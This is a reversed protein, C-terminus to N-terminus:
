TLRDILTGLEKRAIDNASKRIDQKTLRFHSYGKFRTAANRSGVGELWGGYIVGSDDVVTTKATNRTQIKSRYYGTPNQLVRDLRIHLINVAEKGVAELAKTVYQRMAADIDTTFLGGFTRTTIRMTPM